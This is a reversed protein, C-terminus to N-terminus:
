IKYLYINYRATVSEFKREFKLGIELANNVPVASFLYKGGLSKVADLNLSLNNIQCKKKKHCDLFCCKQLEDSFVYCRNGWTDFNKRIFANKDLEAAIIKRFAHKYNLPYYNQYSDLTYFGNYIAVNPEMGLSLVRYASPPLGIYEKIQQCLDQSYVAEFSNFNLTSPGKTALHIYNLKIEKNALIVFCVQISLIFWFLKKTTVMYKFSLGIILFWMLPILFSFRTLQFSTIFHFSDKFTYKIFPYVAIFVAIMAVGAFPLALQIFKIRDKRIQWLVLIGLIYIPFAIFSASHYHGFSIIKITQKITNKLSYPITTWESRHSLVDSPFIYSSIINFNAILFTLFLVSMATYYTFPIKHKLIFTRYMALVFLFFLIFPGIMAFHAYFPFILLIVWHFPRSKRDMIKLFVWLILPVGAMSLGYMTYFPALAFLAAIMAASKHNGSTFYDKMFLYMGIFGVLHIIFSNFVYAWFSPFILFWLRIISFESHFYVRPLGNMINPVILQPDTGFLMGTTKLLHLYLFDSDLNDKYLVYANTGMLLFPVYLLILILLATSAVFLNNKSFM